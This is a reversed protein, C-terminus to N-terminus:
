LDKKIVKYINDAMIEYGNANPHINDSMHIGWVGTWIDEILTIENSSSALATFMNNYQIVTNSPISMATAIEDTYFKALYIKRNGNDFKNIINQLNSQTTSVSINGFFDNAGLLIIIMDPCESLFNSDIRALSHSTTSGSVGANIISINAKKQLYSPYSKSEDDIFPTTAGYGSTLSDGLCVLIIDKSNSCGVVMIGSVLILINVVVVSVKLINNM